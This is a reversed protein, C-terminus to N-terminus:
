RQRGHTHYGITADYQLMIRNVGELSVPYEFRSLEIRLYQYHTIDLTVFGGFRKKLNDLYDNSEFWESFAGFRWRQSQRWSAWFFAGRRGYYDEYVWGDASREFGEYSGLFEAGIQFNHYKNSTLPHWFLTLDAGYLLKGYTHGDLETRQTRKYRHQYIASGGVDMSVQPGAEFTTTVRGGYAFGDPRRNGSIVAPGTSSMAGALALVDEEYLIEGNPGHWHSGHQESGIAEAIEDATLSPEPTGTSPDVDHSHGQIRDYAALTIEIYHDVPVMWSLEIGKLALLGGAYERYIRPESTFPMAHVHFRNWRGFNALMLGARAKFNFPLYPFEAFVEHLEAGHESILINGLLFAYPDVNASIILEAGRLTM